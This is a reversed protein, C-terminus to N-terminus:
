HIFPLTLRVLVGSSGSKIDKNIIEFKCQHKSQLKFIEIRQRTIQTAMSIHGVKKVGETSNLGHGNDEVEIILDTKQKFFRIIILGPYNLDRVGHEIANEVFPQIIMSPLQCDEDNIEDSVLLNFQFKGQFRLQQLKLYDELIELEKDLTTLENRSGMLIGRMLRSFNALYEFAAMKDNNMIFNQVASLSNFLFHPNLQSRFLKQELMLEKYRNRLKRQRLIILAMGVAVFLLFALIFLTWFQLNIRLENLEAQQKLILIEREQKEARFLVNMAETNQDSLEQTISDKYVLSKEIYKLALSPQNNQAYFKGLSKATEFVQAKSGIQESIAIAEKLYKEGQKTSNMALSTTGLNRLNDAVYILDGIQRNLVLSSKYHQMAEAYKGMYVYVNGLANHCIAQGLRSGLKVNIDYSRQLYIFASDPRKLMLWGEGINDTNIAEGLINRPNSGLYLLSQHFYSIAQLTNNYSLYVNGIGNLSSHILFTDHASEAWQLVQMHFKLANANNDVRRFAVAMEHTTYAKIKDNNIATAIDLSKQYFSIAKSFASINRYRRAVENYIEAQKAFQKNTIAVAEAERLYFDFLDTTHFNDGFQNRSQNILSDILKQSIEDITTDQLQLHAPRNCAFLTIITLIPLLRKLRLFKIM